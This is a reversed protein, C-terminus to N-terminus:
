LTSFQLIFTHILKLCQPAKTPVEPSQEGSVWMFIAWFRSTLNEKFLKIM